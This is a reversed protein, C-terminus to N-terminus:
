MGSRSVDGIHCCRRIGASRNISSSVAESYKRANKPTGSVV